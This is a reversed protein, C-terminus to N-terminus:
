LIREKLRQVSLEWGEKTHRDERMGKPEFLLAKKWDQTTYLCGTMEAVQIKTTNKSGKAKQKFTAM